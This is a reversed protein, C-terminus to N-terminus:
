FERTAIGFNSMKCEDLFEKLTGRREHSILLRDIHSHELEINDDVKLLFPGTAQQYRKGIEMAHFSDADDRIANYADSKNDLLSVFAEIEKSPMGHIIKPSQIKYLYITEILGTVPSYRYYFIYKNQKPM